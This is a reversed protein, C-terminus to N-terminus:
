LATETIHVRGALVKRNALRRISREALELESLWISIWHKLHQSLYSILSRSPNLLFVTRSISLSSRMAYNHGHRLDKVHKLNRKTDERGSSSCKIREHM